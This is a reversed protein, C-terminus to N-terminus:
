VEKDETNSRDTVYKDIIAKLQTKSAAGVHKEVVQGDKYILITPINRIGLELVVERSEDTDMKGVKVNPNYDSALEDIIPAMAACPKCWIAFLDVVAVGEKIFEKFNEDTLKVTHNILM